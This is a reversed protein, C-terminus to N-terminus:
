ISSDSCDGAPSLRFAAGSTHRETSSICVSSCDIMFCVCINDLIDSRAKATRANREPHEESGVEVEVISTDLSPVTLMECSLMATLM